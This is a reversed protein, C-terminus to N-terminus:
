ASARRARNLLAHARYGCQCSRPNHRASQFGPRLASAQGSGFVRRPARRVVLRAAQPPACTVGQGSLAASSRFIRPRQPNASENATKLAKDMAVPIVEERYSPLSTSIDDLDVFACHDMLYKGFLLPSAGPKRKITLTKKTKKSCANDEATIREITEIVGFDRTFRERGAPGWEYGDALMQRANTRFLTNFLDDAYGSLL